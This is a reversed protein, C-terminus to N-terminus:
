KKKKKRIPEDAEDADYMRSHKSHKKSKKKPFEEVEDLGGSEEAARKTKKKKLPEYEESVGKEATKGGYKEMFEREAQEIRDLKAQMNLGHRGGKHATRGGCAAVLQEDTLETLKSEDRVEEVTDATGGGEMKGGTGM